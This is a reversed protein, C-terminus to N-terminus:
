FDPFEAASSLIQEMSNTAYATMRYQYFAVLQPMSLKQKLTVHPLKIEGILWGGGVNKYLSQHFCDYFIRILFTM